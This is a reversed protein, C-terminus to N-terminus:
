VPEFIGFSQSIILSGVCGISLRIRFTLSSDFYTHPLESLMDTNMDLIDVMDLATASRFLHNIIILYEEISEKSESKYFYLM